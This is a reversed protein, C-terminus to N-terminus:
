NLVECMYSIPFKVDSEILSLVAEADSKPLNPLPLKNFLLGFFSTDKYTFNYVECDHLDYTKAMDALADEYPCIADILNLELAQRATYIRGDAIKKTAELEINREEAVINVFQLYAEDVLTQFIEKQEATLPDMMSGMAKNKGSTITVSKIGYNELLESFDFLTGITVGISGTWTNRNALIKDAPASIYYGGSAAMSGMYAYVPRDTTNKYEKLKFYLEDSEYVGGGPSNVFLMIGKNNRDVMLDDITDLTFQHQYGYPIGWTDKSDSTIAGEVFLVGIYPENPKKEKETGSIINCGVASFLIGLLLVGLLILIWIKLGKKGKKNNGPDIQYIQETTQEM